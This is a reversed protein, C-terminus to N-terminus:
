IRQIPYFDNYHSDKQLYYAEESYGDSDNSQQIQWSQKINVQVIKYQWKFCPVKTKLFSYSNQQKSQEEFIYTGTESNFNKNFKQELVNALEIRTDVNNSLHVPDFLQLNIDFEKALAIPFYNFPVNSNKLIVIKIIKTDM